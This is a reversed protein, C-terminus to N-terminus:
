GIRSLLEVAQAEVHAYGVRRAITLTEDLLHHARERDNDGGRAVFMRAHALQNRALWYGAGIRRCFSAAAAHHEDADEFRGLATALRGLHFTVPGEALGLGPSLVLERLPALEVYLALAPDRLGLDAIADAWLAMAELWLMDRPTKDLGAQVAEDVLQRAEGSRGLECYLGALGAKASPIDYVQAAAEVLQAFEEVQGRRLAILGALTGWTATVDDPRGTDSGVVLLEDVVAQAEDMSEWTILVRTARHQAFAFRTLPEGLRNTLAQQEALLEDFRDLEGADLHLYMATGLASERLGPDRSEETLELMEMSWAYRQQHTHAVNIAEIVRGLVRVLTVPDGVRRAVAVSEEALALRREWDTSWSLEAALTALLLARMASDDDGLASLAAEAVAVREADIRGVVSYTGPNNELAARGLRDVDGLEQALGAAALLTERHAADNTLRQATGLGILLDCRVSPAVGPVHDALEVAQRFWSVADDPAMSELARVGAQRAYDIAKGADVPTTAAMWHRALEAVRQGPDDGCREELAQAVRLHVRRRRAASLGEYLSHQILAHAFAFGDTGETVVGAATAPELVDLLEDESRECVIALLGLEFDRGIVAAQSLVHHAPDGLRRVRQGIVERVSVPLSIEALDVTAVWQGGAGQVLVRSDVLHRIVELTFFPSGDTEHYLAHALEVGAADLRYGALAEVLELTGRDDLGVLAMREVGPERWLAALAESLPHTDTVEVDRYTAAIFVRVSRVHAVVHRLLLVSQKDAWHLDDLVVVVPALAAVAELLAVVSGFVEYRVFEPDTASPEPVEAVVRRLEPVLRALGGGHDAVHAELLEPPAHEVLARLAEAWPQYPIGLEEDCRGYVVLAGGDHAETAVQAIVTTKGIGAEGGVLVLRRQGDEAEKLLGRLRELEVGRGVVGLSSEVRLREPLPASVEQAVTDPLWEVAVAAVPEPLGKLELPGVPTFTHGGRAGLLLRVLETTLVQGGEAAACLRAAEVVSPGFVDGDAEDVEGHSLGVRVALPESSGRNHRVVAQQVAVACALAGSLSSFVVMFGDGTTKVERGEAEAIASRVLGFHAQRHREAAEPGLRASTATSDVLDTFLTTLTTSPM